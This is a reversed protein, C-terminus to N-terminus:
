RLCRLFCSFALVWRLSLGGRRVGCSLSLSPMHWIGSPLITNALRVTFSLGVAESGYRLFSVSAYLRSKPVYVFSKGITFSRSIASPVAGEGAAHLLLHQRLRCAPSM